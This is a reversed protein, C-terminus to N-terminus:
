NTPRVHRYRFQTRLNHSARFITYGFGALFILALGSLLLDSTINTNLDLQFSTLANNLHRFLLFLTFGLGLICSAIQTLSIMLPPITAKQGCYSCQYRDTADAEDLRSVPDMLGKRCEICVYM